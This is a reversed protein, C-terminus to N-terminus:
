TSQQDKKQIIWLHDLPLSVVFLHVEPGQADEGELEKDALRRELRTSALM